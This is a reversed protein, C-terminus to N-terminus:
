DEGEEVILPTDGWVLLIAECFPDKVDEILQNRGNESNAYSKIGSRGVVYDINGVTIIQKTTVTASKDTLNDIAIVEKIM